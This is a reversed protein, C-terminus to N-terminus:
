PAVKVPQSWGLYTQVSLPNDLAQSYTAIYGAGGYEDALYYDTYWYCFLEATAGWGPQLTPGPISYGASGTVNVSPQFQVGLEGLEGIALGGTLNVGMTVSGSITPSFTPVIPANTTNVVGSPAAIIFDNETPSAAPNSTWGEWQNHFNVYYNATAEAGDASDYASLFIHAQSPTYPETWDLSNLAQPNFTGSNTSNAGAVGTISEAWHNTSSPGWGTSYSGTSTVGGGTGIVSGSYFDAVTDDTQVGNISVNAVRAGNAGKSYTQGFLPTISISRTDPTM